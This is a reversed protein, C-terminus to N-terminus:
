LFYTRSHAKNVKKRKKGGRKKKKKERKRIGEEGRPQRKNQLSIEGEWQTDEQFSQSPFTSNKWKNGKKKEEGKVEGIDIKM